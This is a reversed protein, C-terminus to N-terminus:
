RRSPQTSASLLDQEIKWATHQLQELHLKVAQDVILVGAFFTIGVSAVAFGDHLVPVAISGTEKVSGRFRSAYGQARVGEILGDVGSRDAALRADPSDPKAAAVKLIADRTAPHAYSIYALGLATSLVSSLEGGALVHDIVFPSKRRTTEVLEMRDHRFVALDTPWIVVRQLSDLHPAAIDTVWTEERFGDSLTKVKSSLIYTRSDDRRRVYGLDVLVSLIRYLAARSIQTERALRTVNAGNIMNLATLVQLARVIGRYENEM